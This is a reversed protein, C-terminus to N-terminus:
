LNDVTEAFGLYQSSFFAEKKVKIISTLTVKALIKENKKTLHENKSL